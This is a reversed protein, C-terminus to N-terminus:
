VLAVPTLLTTMSVSWVGKVLGKTQLVSVM